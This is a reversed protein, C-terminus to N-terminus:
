LRDLLVFLHKVSGSGAACTTPVARRSTRIASQVDLKRGGRHGRDGVGAGRAVSSFGSCSKAAPQDAHKRPAIPTAATLIFIRRGASAAISASTAQAAGDALVKKLNAEIHLYRSKLAIDGSDQHVTSVLRAGIRLGCPSVYVNLDVHNSGTSCASNGAAALGRLYRPVPRDM